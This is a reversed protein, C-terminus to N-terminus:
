VLKELRCGKEFEVVLVYGVAVSFIKRPTGPGVAQKQIERGLNMLEQRAERVEAEAKDLAAEKEAARRRVEPYQMALLRIEPDSLRKIENM